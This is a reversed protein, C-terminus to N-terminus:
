PLDRTRAAAVRSLYSQGSVDTRLVLTNVFFGILGEIEARNRNAILSGVAIDEQGTYRYLLANFAALLTMFLTVGEQRSLRHLAETLDKSLALSQAAGRFTQLSPRPHDAPLQLMPIDALKTKWYSLQEELTAGQLQQRQWLAFDVYQIPLAPLEVPVGRSLEAFITFLEQLFIGGSWADSIIHHMTLLLIHEEPELRLLTVRLLPGRALDFPRHAEMDALRMIEAEREDKALEQLDVLPIAVAGAAAIVQQPQGDLAVFTTRLTEHRETLMELAQQLIELRLSGRLLLAQPITYVAAVQSSNIWFGSDSKRMRSLSLALM